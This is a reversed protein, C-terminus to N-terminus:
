SYDMYLIGNLHDIEHQFHLGYVKEGYGTEM